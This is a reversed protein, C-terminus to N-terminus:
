KDRENSTLQNVRSVLEATNKAIRPNYNFRDGQFQRLTKTKRESYKKVLDNCDFNVSFRQAVNSHFGGNGDPTRKWIVFDIGIQEAFSIENGRQRLMTVSYGYCADTDVNIYGGPVMILGEYDGGRLTEDPKLKIMKSVKNAVRKGSIPIVVINDVTLM